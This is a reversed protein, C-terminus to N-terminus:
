SGVQPLISTLSTLQSLSYAYWGILLLCLLFYMFARMYFLLMYSNLQQGDPRLNELLHAGMYLAILFMVLLLGLLCAVSLALVGRGFMLIQGLMQRVWDGHGLRAERSLTMVCHFPPLWFFLVILLFNGTNKLHATQATQTQFAAPVVAAEPLVRRAIAFQSVAAVIFIALAFPLAFDNGSDVLAHDTALSVTSTIAMFAFMHLATRTTLIREPNLASELYLSVVYLAAYHCGTLFTVLAHGPILWSILAAGVLSAVLTVVSPWTLIPNRSSTTQDAPEDAASEAGLKGREGATLVDYGALQLVRNIDAADTVLLGNLLIALLADRDPHREEREIRGYAGGDSYYTPIRRAVEDQTWGRARRLKALASGLTDPNTNAM